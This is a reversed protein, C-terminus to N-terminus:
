FMFNSTGEDVFNFFIFENESITYMCIYVCVCTYVKM